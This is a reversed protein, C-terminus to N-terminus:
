IEKVLFIETPFHDSYGNLYNPGSFTRHPYNRYKGTATRLFPHNHVTAKWYQLGGPLGKCLNGSVIIQDFLNWKGQYCLTGVGNDLFWWFPNFLDHTETKERDRKAGLAESCSRNQPDDNMDGMLVIGRNPDVSWISDAVSRALRGAAERLPSSEKEGGLRSPWHNVIVSVPDGFISGSVAMMDRTRFGPDDPLTLRHNVVNDLTFMLPNYLMAVDIGRPDPSDHHVIELNWTDLGQAILTDDIAKVLDQVVSRNEVEAIGILAPGLPTEPTRMAVIARAMNGIKNWYRKSDWGKAGEPSYELDYKGNANITDFLNELNYFAMGAVYYQKPASQAQPADQAMASQRPTAAATLMLAVM